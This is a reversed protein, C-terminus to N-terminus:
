DLMEMKEENAYANDAFFKKRQPIKVSLTTLPNAPVEIVVKGQKASETFLRPEVYETMIESCCKKLEARVLLEYEKTFEECIGDFYTMIKEKKVKGDDLYLQFSSQEVKMQDFCTQIWNESTTLIEDKSEKVMGEYSSAIVKSPDLNYITQYTM